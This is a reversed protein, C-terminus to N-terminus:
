EEGPRAFTHANVWGLLALLREHETDLKHHDSRKPQFMEERLQALNHEIERVCDQQYDANALEGTSSLSYLASWQGGHWEGAIEAAEFAGYHLPEGMAVTDHLVLATLYRPDSLQPDGAVTPESSM